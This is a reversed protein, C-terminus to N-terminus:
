SCVALRLRSAQDCKQDGQEIKVGLGLPFNRELPGPGLGLLTM